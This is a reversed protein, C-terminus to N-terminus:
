GVKKKHATIVMDTKAKTMSGPCQRMDVAGRADTGAPRNHAFFYGLQGRGYSVKRVKNCWPCTAWIFGGSM